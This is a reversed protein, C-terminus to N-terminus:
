TGDRIGITVTERRNLAKQSRLDIEMELIIIIFRGLAKMSLSLTRLHKLFLEEQTSQLIDMEVQGMLFTNSLRLNWELLQSHM